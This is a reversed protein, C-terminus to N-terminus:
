EMCEMRLPAAGALHYPGHEGLQRFIVGVDGEHLHVHILHLHAPKLLLPGSSLSGTVLLLLLVLAGM